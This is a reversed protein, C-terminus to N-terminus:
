YMCTGEYSSRASGPNWLGEGEQGAGNNKSRNSKASSKEDSLGQTVSKTTSNKGEAITNKRAPAFDERQCDASLKDDMPPDDKPPLTGNRIKSSITRQKWSSYQAKRM